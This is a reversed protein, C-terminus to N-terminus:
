SPGFLRAPVLHYPQQTHQSPWAAAAPALGTLLIGAGADLVLCWPMCEAGGHLWGGPCACCCLWAKKEASRGVLFHPDQELLKDMNFAKIGLILDLDVASNTCEIVEV